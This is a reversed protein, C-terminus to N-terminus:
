GKKRAYQNIYKKCVANENIDAYCDDGVGIVICQMRERGSFVPFIKNKCVRCSGTNDTCKKFNVERKMSLFPSVDNQKAKKLILDTDIEKNM